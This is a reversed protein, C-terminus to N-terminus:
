ARKRRLALGAMGLLMLLGSTPEPAATYWGAGGFSTAGKFVNGSENMVGWDFYTDGMASIPKEVISSVFLDEGNVVAWFLSKTGSNGVEATVDLMYADYWTSTVKAGSVDATGGKWSNFLDSQTVSAADFLYAAINRSDSFAVGESDAFNESTSWLVTAASAASCMLAAGLIVMLKKM